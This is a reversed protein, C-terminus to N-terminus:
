QLPELSIPQMTEQRFDGPVVTRTIRATKYGDAEITVEYESAGLNQFVFLRNGAADRGSTFVEEEDVSKEPELVRTEPDPAGLPGRLTVARLLFDQDSVRLQGVVLGIPRLFVKVVPEQDLAAV